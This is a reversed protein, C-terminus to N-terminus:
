GPLTWYQNAPYAFSMTGTMTSMNYLIELEDTLDLGPGDDGQNPRNANYINLSAFPVTNNEAISDSPVALQTRWSIFISSNSKTYVPTDIDIQTTFFTHAHVLYSTAAIM